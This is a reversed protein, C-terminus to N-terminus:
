IKKIESKWYRSDQTTFGKRECWKGGIHWDGCVADEIGEVLAKIQKNAKEYESHWPKLEEKRNLLGPLAPHEIVGSIVLGARPQCVSEFDCHGCINLDYPIKSPETDTALATNVEECRKLIAEARNLNEDNLVLPIFNMRGSAKGKIIFLGNHQNKMLMYLLLQGVYRQAWWSKLMEEISEMDDALAKVEVVASIGGYTVMGDIHGTVQYEDWAFSQQSEVIEFGLAFLRRRVDDEHLNGEVMRYLAGLEFPKRKDWHKREAYLHWSCPHGASSARNSKVPYTKRNRETDADLAAGMEEALKYIDYDKRMPIVNM